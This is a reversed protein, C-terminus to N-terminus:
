RRSNRVRFRHFVYPRIKLSHDLLCKYDALLLSEGMNEMTKRQGPVRNVNEDLTTMPAKEASFLTKFSVNLKITKSM